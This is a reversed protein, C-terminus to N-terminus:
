SNEGPASPTRSGDATMMRAVGCLRNFRTLSIARYADSWHVM